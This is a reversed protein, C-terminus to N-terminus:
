EELEMMFRMETEDTSEAGLHIRSKFNNKLTLYLTKPFYPPFIHVPNM